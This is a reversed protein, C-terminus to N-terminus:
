DRMPFVAAKGERHYTRLTNLLWRSYQSFGKDNHTSFLEIAEGYWTVIIYSYVSKVKGTGWLLGDKTQYFHFGFSESVYKRFNEDNEVYNDYSRFMQHTQFSYRGNTYVDDEGSGNEGQVSKFGKPFSLQASAFFAPFLFCFILIGKM